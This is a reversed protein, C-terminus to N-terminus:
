GLSVGRGGGGGVVCVCVCVCMICRKADMGRGREFISSFHSFISPQSCDLNQVHSKTDSGSMFKTNTQLGPRFFKERFKM